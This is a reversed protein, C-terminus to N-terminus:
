VTIPLYTQTFHKVKSNLKSRKAEAYECHKGINRCSLFMFEPTENPYDRMKRLRGVVQINSQKSSLAVTMLVYRLNLIDVATGASQITTVVIDNNHLADWDDEGVYRAITFQPFKKQLHETFLTCMAITSCFILMKQGPQHHPVMKTQVMLEPIKLYNALMVKNRRISNEFEVHSYQKKQNQYRVQHIREINYWLCTTAIYPDLKVEPGRTEIPWVTRYLNNMFEQDSDLTASLSITYPIHTYTDQKFNFHFDQHVEDILRIGVKLKEYFQEPHIPYLDDFLPDKEYAKIYNQFTRNGIIIVKAELEDLLALNMLSVLDKSGRIVLLDGKHIEFEGEIDGVWKEIYEAKIMIVTRVSRNLLTRLFCATKGGGTFLTVVKARNNDEASLYDVISIQYDRLVMGSTSQLEIKLPEYLPHEVFEVKEIPVNNAILQARFRELQNIHYRFETRDAKASAYIRIPQFRFQPKGHSYGVVVRDWEMLGASIGEIARQTNPSIRTVTFHHSYLDIRPYPANPDSTM